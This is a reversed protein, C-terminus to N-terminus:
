PRGAIEVRLSHELVGEGLRLPELAELRQGQARVAREIESEALPESSFLATVRLWGSRHRVRLRFGDGFPEDSLLGELQTAPYYWRLRGDEQVGFLCVYRAAPDLDTWTFTVVDDITLAPSEDVGKPLARFMRVGVSASRPVQQGRAVIGVLGLEPDLPVRDSPARLAFVLAAICAAASAAIWAPRRWACSSRSASPLPDEPGLRDLLAAEVREIAFVSPVGSLSSQLADYRAYRATCDPCGALERLLSRRARPSLRGTFLRELRWRALAHLHLSM